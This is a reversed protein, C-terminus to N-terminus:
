EEREKNLSALALKETEEIAKLLGSTWTACNDCLYNPEISEIHVQSLKKLVEKLEEIEKERNSLQSKLTLKEIQESVWEEYLVETSKNNGKLDDIEKTLSSVQTELKDFEDNLWKHFAAAEGPSMHLGNSLDYAPGLDGEICREIAAILDKEETTETM